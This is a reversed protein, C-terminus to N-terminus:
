SQVALSLQNVALYGGYFKAMARVVLNYQVIDEKSMTRIWYMEARVDSDMQTEDLDPLKPAIYMKWRNLLGDFVRLELLLLTAILLTGVLILYTVHKGVGPSKWAFHNTACCRSDYHCLMAVSECRSDSDCIQKCYQFQDKRTLM